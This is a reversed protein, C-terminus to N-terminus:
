AGPPNADPASGPRLFLLRTAGFTLALVALEIGLNYWRGFDLRDFLWKEALLLPGLVLFIGYLARPGVEGERRLARLRDRLWLFGFLLALGLIWRDTMPTIRDRKKQEFIKTETSPVPLIGINGAARFNLM